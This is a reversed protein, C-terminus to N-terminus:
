HIKVKNQVDLKRDIGIEFFLLSLGGMLTLNGESKTEHKMLIESFELKRDRTMM